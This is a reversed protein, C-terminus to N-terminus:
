LQSRFELYKHKYGMKDTPSPLPLGSWYEQRSFGMPLPAQHAVTWPTVFLQFYSFRSLVLDTTSKSKIALQQQQQQQTVDTTDSEARGWLHCGVLSRWGHPKGPLLVPPPQWQRRWIALQTEQVTITPRASFMILVINDEAKNKFKIQQMWTQYFLQSSPTFRPVKYDTPQSETNGTYPRGLKIGDPFQIGCAVVLVKHLWIFSIFSYKIIVHTHETTDSEKLSHVRAQRDRRQGHFEGPSFVPTPLWERRQPIKRVWPNFRHKTCQCM